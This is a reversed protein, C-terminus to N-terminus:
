DAPWQKQHVTNTSGPELRKHHHSSGVSVGGLEFQKECNEKKGDEPHLVSKFEKANDGPIIDITMQERQKSAIGEEEMM